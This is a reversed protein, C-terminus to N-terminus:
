TEEEEPKIFGASLVLGNGAARDADAGTFGLREPTIVRWIEHAQGLALLRLALEQSGIWGGITIYSPGGEWDSKTLNTFEGIPNNVLYDYFRRHTWTTAAQTFGVSFFHMDFVERDTPKEPFADVTVVDLDGVEAVKVVEGKRFVETAAEIYNILELM